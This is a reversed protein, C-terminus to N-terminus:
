RTTRASAAPRASCVCIVGLYRFARRRRRTRPEDPAAAAGPAARAHLGCTSPERRATSSSAPSARSHRRHRARGRGGGSRAVSDRIRRELAGVLTRYGGDLWGMIERGAKDRTAAMRRTRAWIYTAPLDDYRGDFKSDLLPMWLRETVSRGCLRRLWAGAADRRTVGSGQDARLAGRVRRPSGSRPLALSPLTLLEKPSSMSFLRGDDFFGAATPRFRFRDDGIGLEAALGRVRDDTPLVVHYYRDVSHGDFDFAGM